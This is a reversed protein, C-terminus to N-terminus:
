FIEYKRFKRLQPMTKSEFDLQQFNKVTHLVNISKKCKFFLRKTNVKNEAAIETKTSRTLLPLAFTKLAITHPCIKLIKINEFYQNKQISANNKYKVPSVYALYIYFRIILVTQNIYYM